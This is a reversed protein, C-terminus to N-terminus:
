KSISQLYAELEDLDDVEEAGAGGAKSGAPEAVSSSASGSSDGFHMGTFLQLDDLGLEKELDELAQLEVL